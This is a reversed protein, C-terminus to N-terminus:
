KEKNIAPASECGHSEQWWLRYREEVTRCLKRSDCEFDSPDDIALLKLSLQPTPHPPAYVLVDKSLYIPDCHITLSVLPLKSRCAIEFATRGFPMLGDKGSRTGEPFVILQFGDKLSRVADELVAGISLANASPGEIHGAGRILPHLLPRRYIGPKVITCGGGLLASVSTIDMLTPHNAIVVCPGSPLGPVTRRHNFNTIGTIRLWDHMFRYARVMLSQMRRARLVEDGRWLCALLSFIALGFPAICLYSFVTFWAIAKRLLHKVKARLEIGVSM